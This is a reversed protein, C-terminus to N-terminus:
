ELVFTVEGYWSTDDGTGSSSLYVTVINSPRAPITPGPTETFVIETDLRGSAHRIELHIHAPPAGSEPYQAPRITDIRFRGDRDTRVTGGYYCCRETGAPGYRGEADTHWINLNAGEVPTCTSDLVLAVIVLAQGRATSASLGNTPVPVLVSGADVPGARPPLCAGAPTPTVGGGAPSSGPPTGGGAPTARDSSECSALGTLLCTAIVTRAFAAGVTTRGYRM